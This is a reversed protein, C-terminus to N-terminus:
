GRFLGAQAPVVAGPLVGMGGVQSCGRRRPSSVLQPPAVFMGATPVAGGARPRSAPRLRTCCPQRFLGAQAPVVIRTRSLRMRSGSCGRRRPSSAPHESAAHGVHPVAGGARPRGDPGPRPAPAARFLGAQAPVVAAAAVSGAAGLSCGRRRPSSRNTYMPYMTPPPVAGGARPRCRSRTPRSRVWPFLGAQAPVVGGVPPVCRRGGSCGRRRPSSVLQGASISAQPRNKMRNKQTDITGSSWGVTCTSSWTTNLLHHSAPSSATRHRPSRRCGAKRHGCCPSPAV